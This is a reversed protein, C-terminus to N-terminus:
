VREDDVFDYWTVVHRFRAGLREAVRPQDSPRLGLLITEDARVSDLPIIPLDGFVGMAEGDVTCARVTSWARPAYARLLGAAEGAGFCVTTTGLRSQLHADLRRWRDLYARRGDPLVSTFPASGGPLNAGVPAGAEPRAERDAVVMQFAGLAPPAIATSVVPMGARALLAELHPRAFSFLHDAFLLEVGPRGGDPCVLVLRGGPSLAHRLALVFALPDATHEIVNVSMVLDAADHPLDDATGCWLQLGDGAGHTISEASPDCGLLATRPWHPRLARLLSGNGCGVDLARAPVQPVVDAIWRAYEEQRAGERAEGPAHAYLGYGSAYLSEGTVSSPHRRALGCEDCAWRSLPEPVVRWDSAMSQPGPDPLKTWRTGECVICPPVIPPAITPTM